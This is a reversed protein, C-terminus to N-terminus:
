ARLRERPNERSVRQLNELAEREEKTLKTPVAV